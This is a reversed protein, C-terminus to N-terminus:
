CLSLLEKGKSTKLKVWGPPATITQVVTLGDSNAKEQLVDILTGQKHEGVKDSSADPGARVTSTALVLYKVPDTYVAEPEREITHTLEDVKQLLRAGTSTKLSVWGSLTSSEVRVRM